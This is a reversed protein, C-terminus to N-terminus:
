LRICTVAARCAQLRLYILAFPIIDAGAAGTMCFFMVFLACRGPEPTGPQSIRRHNLPLIGSEWDPSAPEIGTRRVLGDESM